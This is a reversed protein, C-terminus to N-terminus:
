SGISKGCKNCYKETFKIEANCYPCRVYEKKNFFIGGMVCVIASILVLIKGIEEGTCTSLEIIMCVYVLTLGLMLKKALPLNMFNEKKEVFEM